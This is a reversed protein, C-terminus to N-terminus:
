TKLLSATPEYLQADSGTVRYGREALMGALAAMATGGVGLLHVHRVVAAIRALRERSEDNTM